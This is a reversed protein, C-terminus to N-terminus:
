VKLERWNKIGKLQALQDLAIELPEKWQNMDTVKLASWVAERTNYGLGKKDIAILYFRALAVPSKVEVTTVRPSALSVGEAGAIKGGFFKECWHAHVQDVFDLDVMGEEPIHALLAALIRLWAERREKEEWGDKTMEEKVPTPKADEPAPKLSVFERYEEGQIYELVVNKGELEHALPAFEQYLKPEFKSNINVQIGAVYLKIFPVNTGKTKGEGVTLIGVAKLIPSGAKPETAM